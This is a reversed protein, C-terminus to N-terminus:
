SVGKLEALLADAKPKDIMALYAIKGLLHARFDPIGDRNQAELGTKKANHVIARLKRVEERPLGLKEADNVVIGTVTQRKASSQIRGKKEQM